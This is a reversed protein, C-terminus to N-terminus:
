DVSLNYFSKRLYSNFRPSTPADILNGLTLILSKRFQDDDTASSWPYAYVRNSISTKYIVVDFQGDVCAICTYTSFYTNYHKQSILTISSLNM